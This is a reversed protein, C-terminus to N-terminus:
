SLAQKFLSIFTFAKCFQILHKDTLWEINDFHYTSKDYTGINTRVLFFTQDPIAFAFQAELFKSPSAKRHPPYRLSPLVM